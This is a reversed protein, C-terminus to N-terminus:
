TLINNKNWAKKKYTKDLAQYGPYVATDGMRIDFAFIRERAKEALKLDDTNKINKMLANM